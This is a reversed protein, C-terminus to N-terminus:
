IAFLPNRDEACDRFSFNRGHLQLFNLLKKDTSHLRNQVHILAHAAMECMRMMCASDYDAM